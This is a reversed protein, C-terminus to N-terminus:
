FSYQTSKECEDHNEAKYAALVVAIVLGCGCGVVGVLRCLGLNGCGRNGGSREGGAVVICHRSSDIICLEACEVGKVLSCFFLLVNGLTISKHCLSLCLKKFSSNEDGAGGVAAVVTQATNCLTGSGGNEPAIVGVTEVINEYGGLEDGCLILSVELCHPILNASGAGVGLLCGIVQLFLAVGKLVGVVHTVDAVGLGPVSECGGTGCVGFSDNVGVVTEYFVIVLVFDLGSECLGPFNGFVAFGVGEVDTLTCLPNVCLATFNCVNLCVVKNCTHLM